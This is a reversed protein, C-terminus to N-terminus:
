NGQQSSAGLESDSIIGIVGFRAVSIMDTVATQFSGLDYTTDVSVEPMLEEILEILEEETLPDDVPDPDDTTSPFCGTLLLSLSITLLLILKKM